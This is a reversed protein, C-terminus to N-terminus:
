LPPPPMIKAVCLAMPILLGRSFSTCICDTISPDGTMMAAEGAKVGGIVKRDGNNRTVSFEADGKLLIGTNM